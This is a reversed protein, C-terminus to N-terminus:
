AKVSGNRQNSEIAVHNNIIIEIVIAAAMKAMAMISAMSIKKRQHRKRWLYAQNNSINESKAIENNGHKRQYRQNEKM